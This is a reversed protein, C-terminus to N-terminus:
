AGLFVVCQVNCEQPATGVQWDFIPSLLPTLSRQLIVSPDAGSLIVYGPHYCTHTTNASNHFFIYNGDSLLLPSPGAEVLVSDFYGGRTTIFSRNVNTFNVLDNSTALAISDDGWLLYHPPAPRIILAGSKSGQIDPFVYGLRTWSGPYPATPDRTTAHCLHGGAKPDYCTYFMHYIGTSPDLTLRPDETGYSEPQGPEPMFVLYPAAFSGDDRQEAFTIVSGPFYPAIPHAGDVNCFVCQGPTFSCNQSRVLLGRKNGTGSSPQVFAPNFSQPWRTHGDLYSIVPDVPLQIISVNYKQAPPPPPPPPPTRGAPWCGTSIPNYVPKTTQVQNKFWCGTPALVAAWCTSAGAASCQNCCDTANAAPFNPGGSGQDYDTSDQFTCGQASVQHACLLVLLAGIGRSAM